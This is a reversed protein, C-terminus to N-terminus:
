GVICLFAYRNNGSQEAMWKIDLCNGMGCLFVESPISHESEIACMDEVSEEMPMRLQSKLGGFPPIPRAICHILFASECPPCVTLTPSLITGANNRRPPCRINEINSGNTRPEHILVWFIRKRITGDPGPPTNRKSRGRARMMLM